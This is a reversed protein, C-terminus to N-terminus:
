MLTLQIPQDVNLCLTADAAHSLFGPTTMVTATTYGQCHILRKEITGIRQQKPLHHAM